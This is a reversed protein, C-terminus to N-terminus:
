EELAKSMEVYWLANKITAQVEEETVERVIKGPVGLVMSRPPIIKGAPVLANAGIISGEGIVAGDLVTSNMGIMVNDEIVPGHVVASHGITVNKGIVTPQSINSHLVCNDQINSNEGIKIPGADARIVAGYWVSTNEAFETDGVITANKAKRLM